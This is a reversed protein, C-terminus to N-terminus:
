CEASRVPSNGYKRWFYRPNLSSEFYHKRKIWVFGEHKTIFAVDIPGGVTGEDSTAKREVATISVLAEAFEILEQKPMMAIMRDFEVSFAERMEEATAQVYEDAATQAMEQVLQRREAVVKKGPRSPRYKEEVANGVRMVAEKIYDGTMRVFQPDVGKLLREIVDKQAFSIANGGNASTDISSPSKATVKLKGAVRGDIEAVFVAPFTEKAGYGAIVIGAAFDSPKSRLMAEVILDTLADVEEDILPQGKFREVIIAKLPEAYQQKVDVHVLDALTDAIPYQLLENRQAEITAALHERIDFPARKSKHAGNQSQEYLFRVLRNSVVSQVNHIATDAVNHLYGKITEETVLEHGEVYALFDEGWQVITPRSTNGEKLRFDKVLIEWPLGLCEMNGNIMLGVPDAVSIEFLKDATDFVKVRGGSTITVASDTALAIGLRNSVAIETTM